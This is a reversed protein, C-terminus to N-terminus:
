GRLFRKFIPFFIRPAGEAGGAGGAGGVGRRRPFFVWKGECPPPAKRRGQSYNLFRMLM